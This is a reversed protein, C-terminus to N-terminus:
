SWGPPKYQGTSMGYGTMLASSVNNGVNMGFNQSDYFNKSQTNGITLANNFSSQLAGSMGGYADGMANTAHSAINIPVMSNQVGSNGQSLASSVAANQNSALGRGLNSADFQMAIARVDTDSRSKNAAGAKAAAETLATQNSMAAFKGSSPNVGMRGLSRMQQQRSQDFQLGVDALAKRAESEKRADSNWGQAQSVLSEELPRFTTKQYNWYDDAIGYQQDMSKVQRDGVLRAQASAYDRDAKGLNWQDKEFDFRERDLEIREAEAASAAATANNQAAAGKKAASNAAAGGVVASGIVAAAIVSM